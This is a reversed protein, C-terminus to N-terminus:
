RRRRRPDASVRDHEGPEAPFQLLGMVGLTLLVGLLLPALALLTHRLSRFDLLLVAVIVLFAYLGARILGDKM